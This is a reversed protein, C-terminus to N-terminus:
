LGGGGGAAQVAQERDHTDRTRTWHTNAYLPNGKGMASVRHCMVKQEATPNMATRTNLSTLLWLMLTLSYQVRTSGM